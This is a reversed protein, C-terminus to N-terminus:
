QFGGPKGLFDSLKRICYYKFIKIKKIFRCFVSICYAVNIYPWIDYSLFYFSKRHYKNM